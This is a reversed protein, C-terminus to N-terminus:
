SVLLFQRFGTFCNSIAQSRLFSYALLCDHFLDNLSIVSTFYWLTFTVNQCMKLTESHTLIQSQNRLQHQKITVTIRYRRPLMSLSLYVLNLLCNHFFLLKWHKYSYLLNYIGKKVLIFPALEM